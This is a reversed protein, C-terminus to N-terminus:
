RTETFDLDRGYTESSSLVAWFGLAFALVGVALAAPLIGIRDRLSLFMLSLPVGSARIFTPVSTGVTARLDTGFQEVAATVAVAWYGSAFGVLACVAYFSASSSGGLWLFSLTALSLFILYTLMARCRSRLAQSLLGCSLDGLTTAVYFWLVARPASVEGRTGLASAFEPAFTILVPVVFWIPVGCAIARLYRLTRERTAFIRRFDGRGPVTEQARQFIASERLGLRLAFLSFGLVGGILYGTRWSLWEGALAAAVAGLVGLTAVITTATGRRTREVLESVLTLGAGLEGALGLGALFRLVAYSALTHVWANALTAASYLFISGFLVTLRGRRDGLMGWLVGGLMMGVLQLNQLLAGDALPDLGLETLSPVRLVSFLLLDFLDVFYGLGAALIAALARRPPLLESPRSM